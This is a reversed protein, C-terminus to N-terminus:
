RLRLPSSRNGAADEGVATVRKANLRLRIVGARAMKVSRRRGDMTLQLVAPESVRVRVPKRSVLQLRPRVTDLTVPSTQAVTGATNLARVSLTYRGDPALMGDPQDGNWTFAHEGAPLSGVFVEVPPSGQRTAEATVDAPVTLAFTYSLTDFRGDGNPSFAAPAVALRALTRNVAVAVTAVVQTSGSQATLVISYIGDAYTDAAWTLTHAGATQQGQPLTAVVAGLSDLVTLTVTAARGLRYNLLATDARGDGDPSVTAPSASATITLATSGGVVVGTAPRLTPGAGITWGYKGAPAQTADWTWDVAAGTGTGSAVTGGAEDMVAVRWPLAASLRATFRVPLGPRGTVRPSYLKPLGISAAANAVAPLLGYVRDGPCSTFGTDRHGSVVRLFVPVAAPYKPNGGSLYSLTSLPDVHAVDLRWALLRALADRAAATPTASAYTGILAVGVSGTNFGQAHAGIVNRDIGGYRGEFVQGFRDVLFNYGIDDWGNSYVHYAAIARVIAVSQGPTSPSAGATHHVVAFRLEDAYRPSDRRLARSSGAWALRPVITPTGAISLRRLPVADAVSWVFTTRLRTVRGRLRYQIAASPGTWYPNGLTWRHPGDPLDEAEPVAPRWASWRGAVGRTRFSVRGPGLSSVGALNFREPAQASLFTQSGPTLERTQTRLEAAHAASPLFFALIVLVPVRM